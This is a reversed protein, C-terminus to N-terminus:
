PISVEKRRWGYAVVRVRRVSSGIELPNFCGHWLIVRERQCIRRVSSGIELPNFSLFETADENFLLVSRVSSGIELPNFSKDINRSASM